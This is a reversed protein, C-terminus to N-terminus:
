KDVGQKQLLACGGKWAACPYPVKIEENLQELGKENNFAQRLYMTGCDCIVWDADKFIPCVMKM